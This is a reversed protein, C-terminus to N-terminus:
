RDVASGMTRRYAAATLEATREWRFGAARQRGLARLRDRQAGDGLLRALGAALADVSEPDVVLAADGVVEALSGRDSTLVPVGRAMAELPPLGFGEYLSPFAFVEALAYLGELQELSVWAPFRLDATTGLRQALARLEAEYPTPYGPLVLVPRPAPLRAHAEILRALNKHPRKASVTLLVPRDGLDLEARLEAEPTVAVDPVPNVGLPVVDVKGAPVRLHEVLDDRTSSADVIVRHSRRAAAPVLLGMVKGRLGFHTDPVLKYNLDHITTVRRFPGALPSTSALSHVLPIRAKAALRPVLVQDGYVWQKRDRAVVPVVVEEVGPGWDAGAADRNVFATLRLDDRAALGRTLQRAYTEMGGQEGPTLFVLNLGVHLM